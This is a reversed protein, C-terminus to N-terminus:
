SRYDSLCVAFQVRFPMNRDALMQNVEVAADESWVFGYGFFDIPQMLCLWKLVPLNEPNEVVAPLHQVSVNIETTYQDPYTPEPTTAWDWDEPDVGATATSKTESPNTPDKLQRGCAALLLLVALVLSVIPRCKKM